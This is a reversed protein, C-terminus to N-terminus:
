SKCKNLLSIEVPDQCYVREDDKGGIHFSLRGGAFASCLNTVM